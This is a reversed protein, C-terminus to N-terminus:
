IIGFTLLKASLLDWLDNKLDKRWKARDPHCNRSHCLWADRFFPHLSGEAAESQRSSLCVANLRLPFQSKYNRAVAQRSATGKIIYPSNHTHTHTNICFNLVALNEAAKKYLVKGKLSGICMIFQRQSKIGRIYDCVLSFYSAQKLIKWLSHLFDERNVAFTTIKM